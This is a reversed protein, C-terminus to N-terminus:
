WWDPRILPVSGPWFKVTTTSDFCKYNDAYFQGKILLSDSSTAGQLKGNRSIYLLVNSPVTVNGGSFSQTDTVRVVGGGSLATAISLASAIGTENDVDIFQQRAARLAGSGNDEITNGDGSNTINYTNTSTSGGSSVRVQATLPSMWSFGLIVTSLLSSFSPVLLLRKNM